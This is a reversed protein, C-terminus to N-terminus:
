NEKFAATWPHSLTQCLSTVRAMRERAVTFLFTDREGPPLDVAEQWIARGVAVGSAGARSAAAVQLLYTEFDVGASLLVWPIASAETLELCAAIWEAENTVTGIDLPFEAKLVDVGPITTLRRATEIVVHQREEPALTRRRSDLSYSLPELFLPVDVERCSEAVQRVLDELPPATPSDPHYYVLLKIGNVGIQALNQANWDPLLETSRATSPGSYGSREMAVILGTRGPLTDSAIIQVAGYEPDILISSAEPALAAVVRQKFEVLADDPVSAPDQPNLTRRLNNRHDIALISFVGESTACQHLRRRKGISLHDPTSMATNSRDQM